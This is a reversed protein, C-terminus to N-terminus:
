SMEKLALRIMAEVSMGEQQVQNIVKSAQQPKYGLAVLAQTAEDRTTATPMFHPKDSTQTAVEQMNTQWASLKDRMEVVLREATKKGVGPLRILRSTEQNQVCEAFAQPQIHSLIALALKAGVGNV